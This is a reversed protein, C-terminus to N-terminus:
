KKTKTFHDFGLLPARLALFHYFHYFFHYVLPLFHYVTSATILAPSPPLPLITFSHISYYSIRYAIPAGLETGHCVGGPRNRICYRHDVGEGTPYM